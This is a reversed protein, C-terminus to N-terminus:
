ITHQQNEKRKPENEKRKEIDTGMREQLQESGNLIKPM